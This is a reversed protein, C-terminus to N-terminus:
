LKSYNEGAQVVPPMPGCDNASQTSQAEQILKLLDPVTHREQEIIM